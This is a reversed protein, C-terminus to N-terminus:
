NLDLCGAEGDVEFSDAFELPESDSYDEKTSEKERKSSRRYDFCYNRLELEEEDM